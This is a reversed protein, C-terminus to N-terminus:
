LSTGGPWGSSLFDHGPPVFLVGPNLIGVPDFIEKLERMYDYIRTGWELELFPARLRGMGHEATITGGLDTAASYIAHAITRVTVEDRQPFLPRLHLNGSGAHGYIVSPLDHDGFIQESIGLLTELKEPPVGVDNVISYPLRAQGRTAQQLRPLLSKRAKWWRAVDNEDTARRVLSALAGHKTAITVANDIRQEVEAADNGQYEILLVTARRHEEPLGFADPALTTSSGSLIEIAAADNRLALSTECATGGSAFPILLSRSQRPMEVCRLTVSTVLCLTGMSGCILRPLAEVPESDVLALLDYGAACKLHRKRELLTRSSTDARLKKGLRVLRDLMYSPITAPKNTEFTTGDSLVGTAAIVFRDIAGHALAHPGSARTNVNGGIYSLPGSSPDSPLWLNHERLAQQLTDHRVASGVHAVHTLPDIRLEAFHDDTMLLLIGDTIAAGGTNSGGARAVVDVQENSAWQLLHSIAESSSPRVITGPTASFVSYDRTYRDSPEVVSSEGVLDRIAAIRDSNSM